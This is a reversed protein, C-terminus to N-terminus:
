DLKLPMVVYTYNKDKVGRMVVPKTAESMKLETEAAGARGLMEVLYNGNLAIEGGEGDVVASIEVEDKGMQGTDAVIKLKGEEVKIRVKGSVQDAFLGVQKLTNTLDETPVRLTTKEEKPIIQEYDPFKGDVLRTVFNIHAVEFGAQNEGLKVKVTESEKALLAALETAARAPILVRLEEKQAELLPIKREALRYSNTAVLKMEDGSVLMLVSNLVPRTPDNSAAFIVQDLAKALVPAALTFEMKAEIEPIVPFEDAAIGKIETKSGGVKIKMANNESAEAEIKEGAVLGVYGGFLKAPVTVAGKEEVEAGVEVRVTVELNTATLRVKEGEGEVLINGLVPLTAKSDVARLVANVAGQLDKKKIQFKM